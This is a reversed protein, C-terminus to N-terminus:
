RVGDVYSRSFKCSGSSFRDATETGAGAGTNSLIPSLVALVREYLNSRNYRSNTGWGVQKQFDAPVRDM